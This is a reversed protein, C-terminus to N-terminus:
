DGLSPFRQRNYLESPFKKNIMDRMTARGKLEYEDMIIDTMVFAYPPDIEPTTSVGEIYARHTLYVKEGSGSVEKMFDKIDDGINDIAVNIEAIGEENVEPLTFRFGSPQFTVLSLTELQLSKPTSARVLYRPTGALGVRVELTDLIVNDYTTNAYAEKIAESLSDNPM